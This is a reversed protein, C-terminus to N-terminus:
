SLLSFLLLPTQYCHNLLFFYPLSCLSTSKTTKKKKGGIRPPKCLNRFTHTSISIDVLPQISPHISPDLALTDTWRLRSKPKQAYKLHRAKSISRQITTGQRARESRGGGGDDGVVQSLQFTGTPPYGDPPPSSCPVLTRKAPTPPPVTWRGVVVLM